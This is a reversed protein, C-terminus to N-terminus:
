GICPLSREKLIMPSAAKFGYTHSMHASEVWIDPSDGGTKGHLSGSYAQKREERKPFPNTILTSQNAAFSHLYLQFVDPVAARITQLTTYVEAVARYDGPIKALNRLFNPDNYVALSARAM